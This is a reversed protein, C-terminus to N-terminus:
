NEGLEGGNEMGGSYRGPGTNGGDEIRDNKQQRKHGGAGSERLEGARNQKRGPEPKGDTKGEPKGTMEANGGGEAGGTFIAPNEFEGTDSTVPLLFSFV